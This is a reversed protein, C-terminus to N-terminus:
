DKYYNTLATVTVLTYVIAGFFGVMLYMTIISAISLVLDINGGKSSLMKTGAQMLWAGCQKLSATINSVDLM